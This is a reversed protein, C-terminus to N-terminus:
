MKNCTEKAQKYNERFWHNKHVRPTQYSDRRDKMAAEKRVRRVTPITRKAVDDYAMTVSEDWGINTLSERYLFDTQFRELITSCQKRRAKKLMNHAEYYIKQRMTPGHRAGHSPNKKHMLSAIEVGEPFIQPVDCRRKAQRDTPANTGTAEFDGGQYFRGVNLCRRM